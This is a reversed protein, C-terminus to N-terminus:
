ANIPCSSWKHLEAKNQANQLCPHHCSISEVKFSNASSSPSPCTSLLNCYVIIFEACQSPACLPSFFHTGLGMFCFPPELFPSARCLHNWSHLRSPYVPATSFLSKKEKHDLSLVYCGTKTNVCFGSHGLVKLGGVVGRLTWADAIRDLKSAQQVM